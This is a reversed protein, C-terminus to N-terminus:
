PEHRIRLRAAIARRSTPAAECVTKPKELMTLEQRVIQGAACTLLDFGEGTETAAERM